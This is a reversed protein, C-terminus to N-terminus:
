RTAAHPLGHAALTKWCSRLSPDQGCLYAASFTSTILLLRFLLWRPLMLVAASLQQGGAAHPPQAGDQQASQRSARHAVALWIAAFSVELLVEDRGTCRLVAALLLRPLATM